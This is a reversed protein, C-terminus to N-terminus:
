ALMLVAALSFDLFSLELGFGRIYPMAFHLIGITLVSPFLFTTLGFGISRKRYKNFQNIDLSIGAVFMLYMLGITGLLIITSDRELLNLASPGAIAGALIIGVLGPIRLRSVVQPALLIIAMVTAVILVPDTFPFTITPFQSM